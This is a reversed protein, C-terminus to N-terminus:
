RLVPSARVIDRQELSLNTGGDEGWYMLNDDSQSSDVIPDVATSDPERNRFLGVHRAIAHATVRALREWAPDDRHAPDTNNCLGTIAIAVGSARTGPLPAGPTGGVLVELGAPALTRVLYVDVGTTSTSTAFLAPATAATLGQMEVPAATAEYTVSGVAITADAFIQQLRALYRGKFGPDSPATTADLVRDIPLCPHESLDAVRHFLEAATVVVRSSVHRDARRWRGRAARGQREDALM